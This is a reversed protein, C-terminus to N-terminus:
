RGDRYSNNGSLCWINGDEGRLDSSGIWWRSDRVTTAFQACIEFDRGSIRRYVYPAGTAPDTLDERSNISGYFGACYTKDDLAVPLPDPTEVKQNCELYRHIRKLDSVREKDQKELRAQGPGGVVMFGGVLAVTVLIVAGAFLLKNM